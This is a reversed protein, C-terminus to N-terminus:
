DKVGVMRNGILRALLLMLLIAALMSVILITGMAAGRGLQGQEIWGLMLVTSLARKESLVLLSARTSSLALTFPLPLAVMLAVVIFACVAYLLGM